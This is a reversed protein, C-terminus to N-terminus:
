SRANCHRNFALGAAIAGTAEGASGDGGAKNHDHHYTHHHRSYALRRGCEMHAQVCAPRQSYAKLQQDAGALRYAPRHGPQPPVKEM